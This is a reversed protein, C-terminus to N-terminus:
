YKSHSSPQFTIGHNPVRSTVDAQGQCVRIVGCSSAFSSVSGLWNPRRPSAHTNACSAAMASMM